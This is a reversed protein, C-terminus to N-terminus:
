KRKKSSRRPTKKTARKIENTKKREDQEKKIAELQEEIRISYESSRDTRFVIEPVFRLQLREGLLRRIFGNARALGVETDSWDQPNGYVSYFIKAFKLDPSMFVNTVTVFGLRPDRVDNQLIVSVERRIEEAVKDIRKM